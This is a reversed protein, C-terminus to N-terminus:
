ETQTPLYLVQEYSHSIGSALDSVWVQLRIEKESVALTLWEHLQSDKIM